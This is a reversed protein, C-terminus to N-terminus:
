TRNTISGYTGCKKCKDGEFNQNPCDKIKCGEAGCHLCKFILQGCFGGDSKRKDCYKSM